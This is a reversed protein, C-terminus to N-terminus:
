GGNGKLVGLTGKKKLKNKSIGCRSFLGSDGQFPDHKSELGLKWLEMRQGRGISESEHLFDIYMLGVALGFSNEYPDQWWFNITPGIGSTTEKVILNKYNVTVTDFHERARLRLKGALVTEALCM